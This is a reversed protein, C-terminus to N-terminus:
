RASLRQMPEAAEPPASEPSEACEANTESRVKYTPKQQSEHYTRVQIEALLGMGVLQVGVIFLM